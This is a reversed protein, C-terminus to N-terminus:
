GAPDVLRRHAMGARDCAVLAERAVAQLQPDDEFGFFGIRPAAHPALLDAPHGGPAVAIGLVHDVHMERALRLGAAVLLDGVGLRDAALLRKQGIGVVLAVHLLDRDRPLRHGVAAEHRLGAVADGERDLRIKVGAGLEADRELIEKTRADSGVADERERGLVAPAIARERRGALDLRLLHPQGVVAFELHRHLITNWCHIPGPQEFLLLHLSEGLNAEVHRFVAVDGQVDLIGRPLDHPMQERGVEEGLALVLEEPVAEGRHAVHLGALHHRRAVVGPLRNAM